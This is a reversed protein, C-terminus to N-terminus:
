IATTSITWAGEGLRDLELDDADGGPELVARAPEDVAVVVALRATIGDGHEGEAPRNELAPDVKRGLRTPISREELRSGDIGQQFSVHKV